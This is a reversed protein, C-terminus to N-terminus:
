PGSFIHLYLLTDSISHLQHFDIPHREQLSVIHKSEPIGSHGTM